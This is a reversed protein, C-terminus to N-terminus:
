LLTRLNSQRLRYQSIPKIWVAHLKASLGHISGSTRTAPTVLNPNLSQWAKGKWTARM